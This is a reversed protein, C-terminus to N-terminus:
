TGLCVHGRTLKSEQGRRPHLEASLRAWVRPTAGATKRVGKLLAQAVVQAKHM